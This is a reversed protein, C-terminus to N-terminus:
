PYKLLLGPLALMTSSGTSIHIQVKTNHACLATTIVKVCGRPHQWQFLMDTTLIACQPSPPALGRAMPNLFSRPRQGEIKKSRVKREQPRVEPESREIMM